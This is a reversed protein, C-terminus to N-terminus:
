DNHPEDPGGPLSDRYKEYANDFCDDCLNGGNTERGCKDCYRKDNDMM